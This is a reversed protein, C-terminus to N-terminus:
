ICENNKIVIKHCAIFMGDNRERDPFKISVNFQRQINQVKSGRTGLVTRHHEQPIICDVTVM